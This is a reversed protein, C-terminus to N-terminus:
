ESLTAEAEIDMEILCVRGEDSLTNEITMNRMRSVIVAGNITADDSLQDIVENALAIARTETTGAVSDGAGAKLVYVFCKLDIQEEYVSGFAEFELGSNADGLYIMETKPAQDLPAYKFVSVGNLGARADLQTKLNSRVTQVVSAIPM